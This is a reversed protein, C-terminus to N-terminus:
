APASVELSVVRRCEAGVDILRLGTGNANSYSTAQYLRCGTYYSYGLSKIGTDIIEPNESAVLPPSHVAFTM